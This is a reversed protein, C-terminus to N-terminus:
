EGAKSEQKDIDDAKDFVGSTKSDTRNHPNNSMREDKDTKDDKEKEADSNKDEDADENVEHYEDLLNDQGRTKQVQM